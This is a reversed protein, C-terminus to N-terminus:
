RRRRLINLSFGFCSASSHLSLFVKLIRTEEKLSCFDLLVRSLVGRQGELTQRLEVVRRRSHGAPPLLIGSNNLDKLRTFTIDPMKRLCQVLTWKSEFISQHPKPPWLDLESCEPSSSFFCCTSIKRTKSKHKNFSTTSDPRQVPSYKIACSDADVASFFRPLRNTVRAWWCCCNWSSSCRKSHFKQAPFSSCFSTLVSDSHPVRRDGSPILAAANLTSVWALGTLQLLKVATQGALCLRIQWVWRIQATPLFHATCASNILKILRAWWSSGNRYQLAAEM